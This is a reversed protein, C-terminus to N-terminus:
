SIRQPDIKWDKDIKEMGIIYKEVTLEPFKGAVIASAEDLIRKHHDNEAAPGDFSSTGGYAGCDAHMTLIVKRCNHLELSISIQELLFDRTSEDILGKVSGATVCADCGDGSKTFYEEVQPHLRWDLCVFALNVIKNPDSSM